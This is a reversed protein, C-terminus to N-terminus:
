KEQWKMVAKQFSNRRKIQFDVKSVFIIDGQDVKLIVSDVLYAKSKLDM